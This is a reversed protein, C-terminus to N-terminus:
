KEDEPRGSEHPLLEPHRDILEGRWSKLLFGIRGKACHAKYNPFGGHKKLFRTLANSALNYPKNKLDLNRAPTPNTVSGEDYGHWKCLASLTVADSDKETKPRKGTRKRTLRLASLVREGEPTLEFMEREVQAPKVRVTVMDDASHTHSRQTRVTSGSSQMEPHWCVFRYRLTLKGDHMVREREVREVEIMVGNVILWDGAKVSAPSCDTREPWQEVPFRHGTRRKVWGVLECHGRQQELGNPLADVRGNREAWELM